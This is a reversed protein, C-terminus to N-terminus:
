AATECVSDTNNMICRLVERNEEYDKFSVNAAQFAQYRKSKALMGLNVGPASDLGEELNPPLMQMM